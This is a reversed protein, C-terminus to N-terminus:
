LKIPLGTNIANRYFNQCSKAVVCAIGSAKINHPMSESSGCGFNNGAVM